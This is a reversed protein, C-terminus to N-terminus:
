GYQNVPCILSFRGKDPAGANHIIGITILKDLDPPGHSCSSMERSPWCCAYDGEDLFTWEFDSQAVVLCTKSTVKEM